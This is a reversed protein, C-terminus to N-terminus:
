VIRWHLRWSTPCLRSWPTWASWVSLIGLKRLSLWVGKKEREQPLRSRSKLLSEWHRQLLNPSNPLLEKSYCSTSQGKRQCLQCSKKLWFPQNCNPSNNWHSPEALEREPFLAVVFRCFETKTRVLPAFLGMKERRPMGRSLSSCPCRELAIQEWM